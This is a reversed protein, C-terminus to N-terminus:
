EAPQAWRATAKNDAARTEVWRTGNATEERKWFPAGTKLYDMLFMAAEFAAARHRSAAGVMMIRDGPELRGVRHIITVGTLDWRSQAEAEIEALVAETMGPYHELTMAIVEDGRMVGTFTAVAGTEGVGELAHAEAGLDFDEEQVRVNM